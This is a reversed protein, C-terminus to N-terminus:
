TAEVAIWNLATDPAPNGERIYRLERAEPTSFTLAPRGDIEAIGPISNGTGEYVDVRSFFDSDGRSVGYTLTARGSDYWAAAPEGNVLGADWGGFAVDGLTVESPRSWRSGEPDDARFFLLNEQFRIGGSAVRLFFAPKSDLEILKAGRVYNLTGESYVTHPPAIPWIEGTSDAARIFNLGCKYDTHNSVRGNDWPYTLAPRGAVEALSIGRNGSAVRIGSGPWSRAEPDTARFYSISKDDADWCLITAHGAIVAFSLDAAKFGGDGAVRITTPAAWHRGDPDEARVFKLSGQYDRYAIAPHGAISRLAITRVDARDITVEETWRLGASDDSRSYALRSGVTFAIAPRGNVEALPAHGISTRSAIPVPVTPVPCRLRFGDEAKERVLIPAIKAAAGSLATELFVSLVPPAVFPRAFAVREDLTTSGFLSPPATADLKVEGAEVHPPEDPM